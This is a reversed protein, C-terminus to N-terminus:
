IVMSKGDNVIPEEVKKRGPNSVRNQRGEPPRWPPRPSPWLRPGRTAGSFLPRRPGTPRHHNM